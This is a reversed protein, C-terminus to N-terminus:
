QASRCALEGPSNAYKGRWERYDDGTPPIPEAPPFIACEDLM